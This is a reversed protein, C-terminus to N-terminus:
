QADRSLSRRLQANLRRTRRRCRWRRVPMTRSASWVLLGALMLGTVVFSM